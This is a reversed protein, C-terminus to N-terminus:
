ASHFYCCKQVGNASRVGNQYFFLSSPVFEVTYCHLHEVGGVPMGKIGRLPGTRRVRGGKAALPRYQQAISCSGVSM